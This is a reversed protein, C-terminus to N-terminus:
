EPVAAVRSYPLWWSRNKTQRTPSLTSAFRRFVCLARVSTPGDIATTLTPSSSASAALIDVRVRKAALPDDKSTFEWIGATDLAAGLHLEFGQDVMVQPRAKLLKDERQRLSDFFTEGDIPKVRGSKIDDHRSDIMEGVEAVEALCGAIADEVLDDMACGSKSALEALRSETEPKFHVEM